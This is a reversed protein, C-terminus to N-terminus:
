AGCNKKKKAVFAKHKKTFIFNLACKNLSTMDTKMEQTWGRVATVVIYVHLRHQKKTLHVELREYVKSVDSFYAHFRKIIHM